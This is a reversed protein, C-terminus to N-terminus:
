QKHIEDYLGMEKAIEKTVFSIKSDLLERKVVWLTGTPYVGKQIAPQNENNPEDSAEIIVAGKDWEDKCKGCPEYTVQERYGKETKSMKKPIAIGNAEGCWFCKILIPNLYMKFNDHLPKDREHHQFRLLLIWCAFYDLQIHNGSAVVARFLKKNRQQVKAGIEQSHTRLFAYLSDKLTSIRRKLRKNTQYDAKRRICGDDACEGNEVQESANILGFALSIYCLENIYGSSHKM